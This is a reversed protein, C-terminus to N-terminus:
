ICHLRIDERRGMGQTESTHPKVQYVYPLAPTDLIIYSHLGKGMHSVSIM